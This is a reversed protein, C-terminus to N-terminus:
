DWCAGQVGIGFCFVWNCSSLARVRPWEFISLNLELNFDYWAVYNPSNFKTVVRRFRSPRRLTGYHIWQSLNCIMWLYGGETNDFILMNGFGDGYGVVTMILNFAHVLSSCVVMHQRPLWVVQSPLRERWICLLFTNNFSRRKISIIFITLTYAM